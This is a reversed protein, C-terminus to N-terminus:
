GEYDDPTHYDVFKTLAVSVMRLFDHYAEGESRKAALGRILDHERETIGILNLWFEPARYKADNM